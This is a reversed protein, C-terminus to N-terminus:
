LFSRLLVNSNKSWVFEVFKMPYLPFFCSHLFYLNWMLHKISITCNCQFSWKQKQLKPFMSVTIRWLLNSGRTPGTCCSSNLLRSDKLYPCFHYGSYWLIQCSMLMHIGLLLYQLSIGIQRKWVSHCGTNWSYKKHDWAFDWILLM